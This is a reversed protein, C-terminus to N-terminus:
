QKAASAKTRIGPLSPKGVAPWNGTKMEPKTLLQEFCALYRQAFAEIAHHKYLATQYEFVFSITEGNDYVFLCFPFKSKRYGSEPVPHMADSEQQKTKERHNTIVNIVTHFLPENQHSSIDDALQNFPYADHMLADHCVQKVTEVLQALTNNSSFKIRLLIMNLFLGPMRELAPHHRGTVPCGFVMDEQKNYQHLTCVLASLCLVFVSTQEERNKRGVIQYLANSISVEHSNGAYDTVGKAPVDFPLYTKPLPPSLQEMWFQRLNQMENQQAHSHQWVAYDKYQLAVPPLDATTGAKAAHYLTALEERFVQDSLYDSIIHHVVITFLFRGDELPVVMLRLLPAISLDFLRNTEREVLETIKSTPQISLVTLADALDDPPQIYQRLLGEQHQRFGTRLIEHRTTLQKLANKLAPIDMEAVMFAAPMNHALSLEESQAALWVRQQAATVPYDNAMPATPITNALTVNGSSIYGAMGHVDPRIFLDRIGLQVGTQRAIEGLLQIAKLSHGGLVFFNDHVGVPVAGLTQQWIQVLTKELPTTPPMYGKESYEPLPLQDENVKGSGNLPMSNLSIIFAPVMYAPLREFLQERIDNEKKRAPAIYGVLMNNLLRTHAQETGPINLLAATIEELEIRVGNLKVQSDKRGMFFINGDPLYKARDGTKYVRLGAEAYEFFIEETQAPLNRYGTAISPGGLLLEGAIGPPLPNNYRDTIFARTQGLPRGINNQNFTKIDPLVLADITAETPGYHNNLQVGPLLTKIKQTLSATLSEGGSCIIRLTKTIDTLQNSTLAGLFHSLFSPTGQLINVGTKAMLAATHTPIETEMKDPIVVCGGSILPLVLELFSVDFVPPTLALAVMESKLPLLQYEEEMKQALAGYTIEVGKPIGTTGSTYLIYAIDRKGPPVMAVPTPLATEPSTSFKELLQENVVLHPACDNLLHNLRSPPLSGDIPIYTFGSHWVAWLLCAQNLSVPATIAVRGNQPISKKQLAVVFRSIKEHVEAYNYERERYIIATAAPRNKVQQQFMDMVTMQAMIGPLPSHSFQALLDTEEQRSILKLHPLPIPMEQLMQRLVTETQHAFRRIGERSFKRQSYEAAIHIGATNEFVTCTLDYLSIDKRFDLEVPIHKRFANDPFSLMINFLPYQGSRSRFGCDEVLFSFPYLQHDLAAYYKQQVQQIFQTHNLEPNMNLRLPLNNVLNGVMQQLQPHTRAAAPVGIVLDESGTYSRLVIGIAATFLANFGTRTAACYRHVQETLANPLTHRYETENTQDFPVSLDPLAVSDDYGQLEQKWFTASHAFQQRNNLWSVYDRFNTSPTTTFPTGSVRAEYIAMVTKVMINLSEGDAVLHHIHFLFYCINEPLEMVTIMWPPTGRKFPAVSAQQVQQQLQAEDDTPLTIFRLHQQIGIENEVQQYPVGNNDGCFTRLADHLRSLQVVADSFVPRSFGPVELRYISSITYLDSHAKIQEHAWIQQQGPSLPYQTTNYTAAPIAQLPNKRHQLFALLELKNEKVLNKDEETLLELNGRIRLNLGTEDPLLMINKAKLSILIHEIGTM